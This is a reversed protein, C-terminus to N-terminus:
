RTASTSTTSASTAPASRTARGRQTVTTDTGDPADNVPLVDITALDSDVQAGGSGTAGLDDTGMSIFALGNYNPDSPTFVLGNLAANIAALTGTFIMNADATGDGAAFRTLWCDASTHGRREFRRAEGGDVVGRRRRRRHDLDPAARGRSPPPMDEVDDAVLLTNAPRRQRRHHLDDGVRFRDASRAPPQRQDHAYAHRLRPGPADSGVFYNATGGRAARRHRRGCRHAHRAAHLGAVAVAPLGSVMLMGANVSLTM